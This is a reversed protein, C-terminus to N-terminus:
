LYVYNTSVRRGALGPYLWRDIYLWVPLGAPVLHISDDGKLERLLRKYVLNLDWKNLRGVVDLNPHGKDLKLAVSCDTVQGGSIVFLADGGPMAASDDWMHRMIRTAMRLQATDWNSDRDYSGRGMWTSLYYADKEVMRRIEKWGGEMPPRTLKRIALLMKIGDAYYMRTFDDMRHALYYEMRTFNDMCHSLDYKSAFDYGVRLRAESIEYEGRPATGDQYYWILPDSLCECLDYVPRLLESPSAKDTTCELLILSGGLKADPCPSTKSTVYDYLTNDESVEIALKVNLNRERKDKLKEINELIPTSNKANRRFGIVIEDGKKCRELPIREKGTATMM